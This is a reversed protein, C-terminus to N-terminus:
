LWLHVAFPPSEGVSLAPDCRISETFSGKEQLAADFALAAPSPLIILVVVRVNCTASFPATVFECTNSEDENVKKVAM